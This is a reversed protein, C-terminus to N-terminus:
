FSFFFNSVFLCIERVESYNGDYSIKGDKNRDIEDFMGRYFDDAEDIFGSSDFNKYEEYNLLGDRDLDCEEFRKRAEAKELERQKEQAKELQNTKEFYEEM